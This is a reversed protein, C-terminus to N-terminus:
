HGFTDNIQKFHDVDILVVALPSATRASQALMRKLTDQIARRNPLGTLADTLARAEALALNRLNALVPAAQAVSDHVRREGSGRLPGDHDVLVSGIM